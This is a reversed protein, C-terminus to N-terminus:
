LEFELICYVLFIVLRVGSVVCEELFVCFKFFGGYVRVWIDLRLCIYKVGVIDVWCVIGGRNM